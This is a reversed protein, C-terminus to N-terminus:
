PLPPPPWAEGRSLARLYLLNGGRDCAAKSCEKARAHADSFDPHALVWKYDKLAPERQGLIDHGLGRYLRLMTHWASDYVIGPKEAATEELARDLWPLAGRVDPGALCQDASLGCLLSLQKRRFSEPNEKAKEFLLRADALSGKQDGLRQKLYLALFDFYPSEPVAKQLRLVVNLARAWDRKDLIYISSLMQAAQRWGYRGNEVALQIRELGRKEDGDIGALVTVVGPLRAAQYDFVGLGLYADYYHEDTKVCKKLHKIAKKGDRYAQWWHGRMLGWQGRTGLTMGMVFHGDARQPKDKSETMTDAKRLAAEIDQEFLGQLTPTGKFLGYEMSSQWWIGGAEFLYGFPNDPELEILKRFADRSEQYDLSYLRRLGEDLHIEANQTLAASARTATGVLVLLLMLSNLM